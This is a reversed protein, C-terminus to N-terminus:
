FLEEFRVREFVDLYGGDTANLITINRRTAITKLSRYTKWLKLNAEMEDDYPIRAGLPIAGLKSGEITSGEYFHQDVGRNALYDHDFGLLYIPSCGMYIALMLPLASVGEIGQVVKTIDVSPFPDGFPMIYFTRQEDLWNHKKNADYGRFLPLFFTSSKINKNLQIFFNKCSDDGSFFGKDLFCYYTPQWEHVISHKWFGSVVFTIEDRLVSLDQKKLSPGNVIVFCRRGKHKDKFVSNRELIKKQEDTLSNMKELHLAWNMSVNAFRKSVRSFIIRVITPIMKANM